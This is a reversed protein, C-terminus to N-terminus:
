RVSAGTDDLSGLAEEVSGPFSDAPRVHQQEEDGVLGFDGVPALRGGTVHHLLQAGEAGM